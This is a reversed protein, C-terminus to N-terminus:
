LYVTKRLLPFFGMGDVNYYYYYRNIQLYSTFLLQLIRYIKLNKDNIHNDEQRLYKQLMSHTNKDNIHNDEQRLYKQLMSHTNRDNIHNDEQRLYKQLMSHTNKNKIITVDEIATETFTDNGTTKHCPIPSEHQLGKLM